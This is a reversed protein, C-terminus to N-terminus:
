IKKRKKLCDRMIVLNGTKKIMRRDDDMKDNEDRWEMMGNEISKYNNRM